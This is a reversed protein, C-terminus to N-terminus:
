SIKLSISNKETISRTRESLLIKNFDSSIIKVIEDNDIYIGYEYNNVMGGSTLNGSTIVARKNDFLYIKSHFKPYNRIIGKKHLINELAHIDISGNYISMLNPFYDSLNQIFEYKSKVNRRM